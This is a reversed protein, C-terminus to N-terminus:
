RKEENDLKVAVPFTCFVLLMYIGGLTFLPCKYGGLVYLFSGIVPGVLGGLGYM